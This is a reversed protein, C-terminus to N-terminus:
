LLQKKLKFIAKSHIQSIRSTSLQLIEGIETLTMEEKYFLSLVLQEKESLLTISDTLEALRENHLISEEPTLIKEDKLVFSSGDRDETDNVQEDMSLINAHFYETMTRYVDEETTNMESAIEAATASRMLKQELKEVVLEMKKAKDRTSRPLWDEKRLGDLIAGRIRFSAYTDFKLDRKADFKQLADYLGMLGLSRIDERSVNKPLGVGIRQVHYQVLPMYRKVLIDGIEPDKTQTWVEWQAQEDHMTPQTM